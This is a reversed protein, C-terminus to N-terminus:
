LAVELADNGEDFIQLCPQVQPERIISGQSLPHVRKLGVICRQAFSHVRQLGDYGCRMRM